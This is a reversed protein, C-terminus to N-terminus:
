SGRRETNIKCGGLRQCEVPLDLATNRTGQLVSMLGAEQYDYGGAENRKFEIGSSYPASRQDLLGLQVATRPAISGDAKFDRGVNVSVLAVTLASLVVTVVTFRGLKM